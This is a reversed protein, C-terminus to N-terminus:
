PRPSPTESLVRRVAAKWGEYREDRETASMAPEFAQEVQWHDTIEALNTYMGAGLGALYAAGLATTEITVPRQVPIGTLDALRQCLWNNAVMGGDVRLDRITGAEDARMAELLDRTQFAVSELAARVIQDRSTDRTLGLIAGRADADWYPAGLGTFAPILYVGGTDGAAMAMRASEAANELLGLGDRLWQITSGAAYSSGELAYTPQGAIQYALTTLMRNTSPLPASGTNLLLFNGTGYTSKVTGPVFATQGVMAAHQDGAVGTIPLDQDLVSRDVM